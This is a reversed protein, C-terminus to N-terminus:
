HPYPRFCSAIDEVPCTAALGADLKLVSNCPILGSFLAPHTLEALIEAGQVVRPGPNSFYVHDIVYVEGDRV